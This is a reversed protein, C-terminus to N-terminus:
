LFRLNHFLKLFMRVRSAVCEPRSNSRRAVGDDTGEGVPTTERCCNADAKSDAGERGGKSAPNGGAAAPSLFFM